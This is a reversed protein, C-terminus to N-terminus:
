RSSRRARCPRSSRRSDSDGRAGRRQQARHHFVHRWGDDRRAAVGRDALRRWPLALATRAAHTVRRRCRSSRRRSARRSAAGCTARRRSSRCTAAARAIARLEAELEAPTREEPTNMLETGRETANQRPAAAGQMRRRDRRADRRDRRAHLGGRRAARFGERAGAALGAIARELDISLGPLSRPGSPATRWRTWTKSRTM